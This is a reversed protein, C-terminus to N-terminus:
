EILGHRLCYKTIDANTELSLKEMVRTRFTSVTKISLALTKAIHTVSRGSALMCLVTYERPSLEGHPAAAEDGSLREAFREAVDPSIHRGGQLVRSIARTLEPHPHGKTVYGTAGLRLAQLAFEVGAHVSFVLIPASPRVRRMSVLSEMGSMGPMSLDLLILDFHQVEVAAVASAGDACETIRAQPYTELLVQRVGSRLLPHDDVILVHMM